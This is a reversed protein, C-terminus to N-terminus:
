KNINFNGKICKTKKRNCCNNKEAHYCSLNVDSCNLPDKICSGYLNDEHFNGKVCTQRNISCCTNKNNDYCPYSNDTCNIRDNVCSGYVNDPHFNSKICKLTDRNCCGMNISNYCPYLKNTCEITSKVCDDLDIASGGNMIFTNIYQNLVERGKKGYISVKRKTLPNVIYEM